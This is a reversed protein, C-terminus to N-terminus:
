GIIPLIIHSANVRDHYITQTAEVLEADEGFKHGTNPNRDYKPFSSSSIDIRIRHDKLFCNSIIWLDIPFEYVSGPELLQPIELSNRYRGRLIGETLHMSYRDPYVDTLQVWFDTDIASTSASLKMRVRGTVEVPKKLIPTTYVLVDDRSEIPSQDFPGEAPMQSEECLNPCPDRPNYTYTDPHEELTPANTDLTGDGNVSNANGNSHLFYPVYNTRALPWEREKRWVNAGIVFIEVPPENEVHNDIGKLWHDFWKLEAARLDILAKEGFDIDALKRSVNVHHQWPGIILKQNSANVSQNKTTSGVYNLHTGIIDDDYWGSIHLTPVTITPYKDQYFVKKWYSDASPHDIWNQWIQSKRGYAEDMTRLPLHEYLSKTDYISPDTNRRGEVIAMWEAMWLVLAGNQFPVNLVPDPLAVISIMAKLQPHNLTATAWQNWAQYSAGFTGINGNGWEQNTCWTITDYGDEADNHFPHFIGESDNKGRCDQIVYAYQHSVFFKAETVLRRQYGQVTMYPTRTLITPHKDSDDPRYIDSSLRTGDRMTQKIGLEVRVGCPSNAKTM